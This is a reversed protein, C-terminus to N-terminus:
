TRQWLNYAFIVLSFRHITKFCLHLGAWLVTGASRKALV